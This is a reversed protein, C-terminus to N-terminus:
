AVADKLSREADTTQTSPFVLDYYSKAEDGKLPKVGRYVMLGSSHRNLITQYRSPIFVEGSEMEGNELRREYRVCAANREEGRNMAFTVMRPSDYVFVTNVPFEKLSKTEFTRRLEETTMSRLHRAEESAKAEEDHVCGYQRLVHYSQDSKKKDACMGMYVMVRFKNKETLMEETVFRQAIILTQRGDELEVDAFVVPGFSNQGQKFERTVFVSGPKLDRLPTYRKVTTLLDAPLRRIGDALRRLRQLTENTTSQDTPGPKKKKVDGNDNTRRKSPRQKKSPQPPPQSLLTEEDSDRTPTTPPSSSSMEGISLVIGELPTFATSSCRSATM